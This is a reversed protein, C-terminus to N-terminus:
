KIPFAFGRDTWKKIFIQKNTEWSDKYIGAGVSHHEVLIDLVAIKSGAAKAELCFDYDYFDYSGVFTQSDFNLKKLLSGRVALFLGDVVTMDSFNGITRTMHYKETDSKWQILHGRHLSADSLWWGCTEHLETAGIVGAIDINLNAFAYELKEEFAEDLIKVDAHVFVVIDNDDLGQQVYYNIGLNYKEFLGNPLGNETLHENTIHVIPHNQKFVSKSFFEDFGDKEYRAVVLKIM